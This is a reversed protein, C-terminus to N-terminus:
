SDLFLVSFSFLWIAKARHQAANCYASTKNEANEVLGTNLWLNCKPCFKPKHQYYCSWCLIFLAWVIWPPSSESVSKEIRQLPGARVRLATRALFLYCQAGYTAWPSPQKIRVHQRASVVPHAQQMPVAQGRGAWKQAFLSKHSAFNHSRM